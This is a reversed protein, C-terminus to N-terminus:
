KNRTPFHINLMLASTSANPLVDISHIQYRVLYKAKGATIFCEEITRPTGNRVNFITHKVEGFLVINPNILSCHDHIGTGSGAPFYLFVLEIAFMTLILYRYGRWNKQVPFIPEIILSWFDEIGLQGLKLYIFGIIAPILSPLSETLSLKGSSKSLIM